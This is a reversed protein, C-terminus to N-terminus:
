FIQLTNVASINALVSLVTFYQKFIIESALVIFYIYKKAEHLSGAYKHNYRIAWGRKLAANITKQIGNTNGCNSPLNM